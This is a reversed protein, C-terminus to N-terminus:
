KQKERVLKSLSYISTTATDTLLVEYNESFSNACVTDGTIRWEVALILKDMHDFIIDAGNSEERYDKNLVTSRRFFSRRYGDPYKKISDLRITRDHFAIISDILTQESKCLHNYVVFNEEKQTSTPGSWIQREWANIPMLYIKIPAFYFELYIITGIALVYILIRKVKKM